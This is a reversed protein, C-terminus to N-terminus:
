RPSQTALEVVIERYVKVVEAPTAEIGRSLVVAHTLVAAPDTSPPRPPVLGDSLASPFKSAAMAEAARVLVRTTPDLTGPVVGMRALVDTM